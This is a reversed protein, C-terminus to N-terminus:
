ICLVSLIVIAAALCQLGVLATYVYSLSSLVGVPIRRCNGFIDRGWTKANLNAIKKEGVFLEPTAVFVDCSKNSKMDYINVTYICRLVSTDAGLFNKISFPKVKDVEEYRAHIPLLLRLLENKEKFESSEMKVKQPLKAFTLNVNAINYLVRFVPAEIDFFFSSSVHLPTYNHTLDVGDSLSTITYKQEVEAVDFFFTKPLELSIHVSDFVSPFGVALSMHYGAGSFGWLCVGEKRTRDDAAFNQDAYNSIGNVISSCLLMLILFAFFCRRQTSCIAVGFEYSTIM